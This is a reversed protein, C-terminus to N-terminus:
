LTGVSVMPGDTVPQRSEPPMEPRSIRDFLHDGVRSGDPLTTERVAQYLDMAAQAQSHGRLTPALRGLVIDAATHDTATSRLWAAARAIVEPSEALDGFLERLGSLLHPEVLPSAPGFLWPRGADECRMLALLALRGAPAPRERVLWNEVERVLMPRMGPRPALFDFVDLAQARITRDDTQVLNRLRTMALRCASQTSNKDILVGRCVDAVVARVPATQKAWKSLSKWTTGSMHDDKLARETVTVLLAARDAQLALERLKDLDQSKRHRLILASLARPSPDSATRPRVPLCVLWEMLVPRFSPFNDWVYGLVAESYGPRDFTVRDQPDVDASLALLRPRLGRGAFITGINPSGVAQPGGSAAEIAKELAHADAGIVSAPATRHIALALLLCRDSLSLPAEKVSPPRAPDNFLTDFHERWDALALEIQARLGDAPIAPAALHEIRAPRDVPGQTGNSDATAQRQRHTAWQRVVTEVCRMAEVADRGQISARANASQVYQILPGLGKASLHHEVLQQANPPAPLHVVKIGPGSWSHHGAWLEDTATVVLHSNAQRLREAFKSLRDLFDSDFRDSEPDKLELLYTHDPELPLRGTSPQSWDAELDLLTSEAATHRASLQRAFTTAGYGRRSVILLVGYSGGPRLVDAGNSWAQEWEPPQLFVASRVLEARNFETGDLVDRKRTEQNLNEIHNALVDINTIRSPFADRRPRDARPDSPPPLIFRPPGSGFDTDSARHQAPLSALLGELDDVTRHDDTNM